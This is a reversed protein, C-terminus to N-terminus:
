ESADESAPPVDDEMKERVHVIESGPFRDLVARVMPDQAVAELKAAHAAKKSDGLTAAGGERAVTVVWRIGTWEKLKQALDAALTRPARSSPRFEIRGPELSVLHMDNEIHVKLVAAGRQGALAAIEELSRLVPTPASDM